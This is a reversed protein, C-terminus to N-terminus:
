DDRSTRKGLSPDPGGGVAARWRRAELEARELAARCGDRYAEAARAAQEGKGRGRLTAACAAAADDGAHLRELLTQLAGCLAAAAAAEGESSVPDTRPDGAYTGLTSADATLVRLTGVLPLPLAGCRVSHPSLSLKARHLVRERLASVDRVEGQPLELSLPVDDYPNDRVGFGYFLLLEANSKAGYSVFIEEGARVGRAIPLHLADDRLRSYRVAHPWTAHNCLLAIPPLCTTPAPPHYEGGGSAGGVTEAQVTMGYANWAESAIRFRRLTYLETPFVEPFHEGLAPFLAAHQRATTERAKVADDLLPAGRLLADTVEAPWSAPTLGLAGAATRDGDIDGGDDMPLSALLPAWPSRDGLAYKEYVLWLTMLTDEGLGAFTRYADGRATPDELAVRSTLLASSPITLADAGAPLDTSAAAGRGTSPFRAPVLRVTARGGADSAAEFDAAATSSTSCAGGRKVWAIMADGVGGDNAPSAPEPAVTSVGPADDPPALAADCLSRVAPMASAAAAGREAVLELALACAATENRPSLAVRDREGRVPPTTVKAAWGGAPAFYAERDDVCSVRAAVLLRTAFDPASLDVANSLGCARMIKERLDVHEDRPMPVTVICAM